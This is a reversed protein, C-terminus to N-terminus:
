QSTQNLKKYVEHPTVGASKYAIWKGIMVAASLGLFIIIATIVDKRQM